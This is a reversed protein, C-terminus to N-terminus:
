EADTRPREHPPNVIVQVEVLATAPLALLDPHDSMHEVQTDCHRAKSAWHKLARLVLESQEESGGHVGM